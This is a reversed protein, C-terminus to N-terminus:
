LTLKEQYIEPFLPELNAVSDIEQWEKYVTQVFSTREDINLIEKGAFLFSNIKPTNVYLLNYRQNSQYIKRLEMLLRGLVNMGVLTDTDIEKAGWFTDKSSWEVITFSTTSELLRGFNFFHQALKVRLCWRMIEVKVEEWDSRTEELHKKSKMKSSMGSNQNSISIQLEPNHPYRCAQYLGESSGIVIGNITLPYGSAM